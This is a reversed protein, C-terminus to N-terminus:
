GAFAIKLYSALLVTLLGPGAERPSDSNVRGRLKSGQKEAHKALRITLAKFYVEAIDNVDIRGTDSNQHFNQFRRAMEALLEFQAAQM